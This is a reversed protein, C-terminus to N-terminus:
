LGRASEVALRPKGSGGPGVLPALRSESVLHGVGATEDERGVSSTTATRRTPRRGAGRAVGGELEPAPSGRLISLHLERLPAAPDTGLTDALAARTQEFVALAEAPRGDTWLARMLAGALPERTPHDRVAATLDAIVAGPEIGALQELAVLRLET